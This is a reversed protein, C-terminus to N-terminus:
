GKEIFLANFFLFITFTLDHENVGLEPIEESFVKKVGVIESPQLPGNFFKVQEFM